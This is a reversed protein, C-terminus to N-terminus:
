ASARVNSHMALLHCVSLPDPANATTSRLDEYLGTLTTPGRLHIARRSTPEAAASADDVQVHRDAQCLRLQRYCQHAQLGCVFRTPGPRSRTPGSRALHARTHTHAQVSCLPQRREGCAEVIRFPETARYRRWQGRGSGACGWAPRPTQLGEQLWETRQRHGPHVKRHGASTASTLSGKMTRQQSLNQEPPGVQVACFRHLTLCIGREEELSTREACCTGPLDPRIRRLLKSYSM